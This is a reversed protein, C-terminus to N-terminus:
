PEYALKTEGEGRLAGTGQSKKLPDPSSSFDLIWNNGILPLLVLM